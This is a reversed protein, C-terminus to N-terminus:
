SSRRKVETPLRAVTGKASRSSTVAGTRLAVCCVGPQQDAVARVGSAGMGDVFADMLEHNMGCVLDRHDKALADFPCNALRLEDASEKRPEFGYRALTREASRMLHERDPRPGAARRAEEGLARGMQRALRALHRTAMKGSAGVADALLRALMEYRRPPVSLELRKAGRQYLKSPRGAGPGSRGSLRRFSVELFGADVLKDLHFAALAREVHTARAAEDRGVERGTRAVYEYLALRVPEALVAADDLAPGIGSDPM